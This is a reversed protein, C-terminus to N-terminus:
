IRITECFSSRMVVAGASDAGFGGGQVKQISRGSEFVTVAGAGPVLGAFSGVM